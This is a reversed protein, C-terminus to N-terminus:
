EVEGDHGAQEVRQAVLLGTRDDLRHLVGRLDRCPGLPPREEPVVVLQGELHHGVLFAFRHEAPICRIRPHAGVHTDPAPERRQEVIGTCLDFEDMRQQQGQGSTREQVVAVLDAHPVIDPELVAVGRPRRHLPVGVAIRPEGGGVRALQVQGHHLRQDVVVAVDVHLGLERCRTREQVPDALHERHPAGVRGETEAPVPVDGGLRIRYEGEQALDVVAIGFM